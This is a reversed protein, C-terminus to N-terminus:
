TKVPGLKTDTLVGQLRFLVEQMDPTEGKQGPIERVVRLCSPIGATLIKYDFGQRGNASISVVNM